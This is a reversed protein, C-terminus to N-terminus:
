FNEKWRWGCRKGFGRRKCGGLPKRLFVRLIENLDDNLDAQYYVGRNFYQQCSLDYRRRKEEDKLVQYAENIDKLHEECGPKDQNRDPHYDMVLKRYAKKIAEGSAEREVGLLRYYDKFALTVVEAM